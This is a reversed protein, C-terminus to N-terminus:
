PGNGGGLGHPCRGYIQGCFGERCSETQQTTAGSVGIGSFTVELGRGTSNTSSVVSQSGREKTTHVLFPGREDAFLITRQHCSQEEIQETDEAIQETDDNAAERINEAPDFSFPM